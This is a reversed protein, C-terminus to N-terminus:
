FRWRLGASPRVLWGGLGGADIGHLRVGATAAVHTAIEIIAEAGVVAGAGHQVSEIERPYPLFIALRPDINRIEQEVEVRSFSVGGLVALDVRAGLEQRIWAAAAITTHQQETHLEFAFGPPPLGPPLLGPPLLSDPTFVPFTREIREQEIGGGRAFELEIGWREGFARGLTLSFGPADGDRSIDVLSAIRLDDDDVDVGGFRAFEQLFAAGVYTDGTTQAAAPAAALLCGFLVLVRM